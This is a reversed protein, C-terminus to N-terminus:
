VTDVCVSDERLLLEPLKQGFLIKLVPRETLGMRFLNEGRGRDGNTEVLPILRDVVEYAHKLDSVWEETVAITSFAVIDFRSLARLILASAVKMTPAAIIYIDPNFHPRLHCAEVLGEGVLLINKMNEFFNLTETSIFLV